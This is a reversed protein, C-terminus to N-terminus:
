NGAIPVRELLNGSDDIIGIGGGSRIYLPDAYGLTGSTERVQPHHTQAATGTPDVRVLDVSWRVTTGLLSFFILRQPLTVIVYRVYRGPSIVIWPLWGPNSELTMM